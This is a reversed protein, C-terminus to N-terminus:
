ARHLDPQHSEPPDAPVNEAEEVTVGMELPSRDCAACVGRGEGVQEAVVRDEPTERGRGSEGVGREDDSIPGDWKEVSGIWSVCVPSAEADVDHDLGGPLM